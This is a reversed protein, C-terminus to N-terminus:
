YLEIQSTNNPSMKYEQKDLLEDLTNYKKLYNNLRSRISGEDTVYINILGIISLCEAIFRCQPRSCVKPNNSAMSPLNQLLHFIGWIYRAVTKDLPNGVKKKYVTLLEKEAEEVSNVGLFRHLYRDLMKEFWPYETQIPIIKRGLTISCAKHFRGERDNRAVYLQLLEPRILKAYNNFNWEYEGTIHKSGLHNMDRNIIATLFLLIRAYEKYDDKLTEKCLDVIAKCRNKFDESVPIKFFDNTAMIYDEIKVTPQNHSIYTYKKALEVDFNGEQVQREYVEFLEDTIDCLQFGFYEKLQPLMM